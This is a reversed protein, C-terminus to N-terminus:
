RGGSGDMRAAEGGTEGAVLLEDVISELRDLRVGKERGRGVHLFFEENGDAGRLGSRCLGLLDLRAEEVVFRGVEMLAKRHVEPDRVVGGKGVAAPGAEFQPKVLVLGEFHDAMCTIVAPLVKTVSIFSVDMTVFDPVYALRDPTLYRANVKEVVCVRPDGRLRADLQGRGVDLAIVRYAGAQLLCDVFGGTSAGVDFAEVGRVEIRLVELAHALKEGARSVYRPGQKVAMASECRVQTGAKDSIEGDVTVRGAMILGRAVSRNEALGRAVLLEDLRSRDARVMM